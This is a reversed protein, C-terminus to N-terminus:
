HYDTYEVYYANGGKFQFIIRWNGTIKVSYLGKKNGALKHLNAGPYNMDKLVTASHLRDLVRALRAAHQPNIGGKDGTYFFAALGKNKFSKIM